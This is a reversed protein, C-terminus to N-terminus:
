FNLSLSILAHGTPLFHYFYETGLAIPYIRAFDLYEKSWVAFQVRIRTTHFKDKQYAAVRLRFIGTRNENPFHLGTLPRFRNGEKFLWFSIPFSQECHYQSIHSFM